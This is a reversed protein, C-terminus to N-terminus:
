LAEFVHASFVDRLIDCKMALTLQTMNPDHMKKFLTLSPAMFVEGSYLWGPVM